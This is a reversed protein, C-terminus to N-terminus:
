KTVKKNYFWLDKLEYVPFKTTKYKYAGSSSCGMNVVFDQNYLNWIKRYASFDIYYCIDNGVSPIYKRLLCKFELIGNENINGKDFVSYGILKNELFFYMVLYNNASDRMTKEFFRKDYSSHMLMRYRRSGHESEWTKIMDIIKDTESYELKIEVKDDWKRCYQRLHEFKGGKLEFYNQNFIGQIIQKSSKINCFEKNDPKNDIYFYSINNCSNNRYKPDCSVIKTKKSDKYWVLDSILTSYKGLMGFVSYKNIYNM